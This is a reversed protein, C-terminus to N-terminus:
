RGSIPILCCHECGASNNLMTSFALGSCYTKYFYFTKSNFLFFKLNVINTALIIKYIFLGCDSSLNHSKFTFNALNSSVFNIHLYYSNRYKLM